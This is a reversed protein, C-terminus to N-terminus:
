KKSEDKKDKAGAEESPKEAQDKSSKGSSGNMMWEQGTAEGIKYSSTMEEQGCARLVGDILFLGLTIAGLSGAALSLMEPNAVNFAGQLGAARRSRDDNHIGLGRQIQDNAQRIADNVQASLGELGPIRVQSLIGLPIALLLPASLGIISAICKGDIESSGKETKNGQLDVGLDIEVYDEQKDSRVGNEIPVVVLKGGPVKGADVELHSGKDVIKDSPVITCSGDGTCINIEVNNSGGEFDVIYSGDKGPNPKISPRPKPLEGESTDPIVADVVRVLNGEPDRIEIQAQGRKGPQAEIALKGPEPETVTVLDKGHVVKYTYKEGFDVSDKINKYLVTRFEEFNLQKGEPLVEINYRRVVVDDRREIVKVTKGISEPGKPVLIWKGDEEIKKVWEKGEIIEIPNDNIRTITFRGDVSLKYDDSSATNGGNKGPVVTYTYREVVTEGSKIEVTATGTKGDKPTVLLKDGDRKVDIVDEGKVKYTFESSNMTISSESKPTLEFKEERAGQPTVNFIYRQYAIGRSNLFEVIVEGKAGEKFKLDKGDDIGSALLEDGKTVKTDGSIGITAGSKVNKRVEDIESPTVNITYEVLEDDGFKEVIVIKDDTGLKPLVKWNGNEDEKKEFLGEGARVEFENRPTGRKLTVTNRDLVDQTVKATPYKDDKVKAVITYTGILVRGNDTEKYVNFVLTGNTVNKVKWPDQEDWEWEGSQSVIEKTLDTNDTGYDITVTHGEDMLKTVNDVSVNTGNEIKLNFTYTKGENDVAKIVVDGTANKKPTVVWLDGRKEIKEIKEAGAVIEPKQEVNKVELIYSNLNGIVRTYTSGTDIMFIYNNEAGTPKGNVKEFVTVKIQDQSLGDVVKLKYQNSSGEVKVLEGPGDVKYDWGAPVTITQDINSVGVNFFHNNVTVDNVTVKETKENVINVTYEHRNGESDTIVFRVTGKGERKPVIEIVYKGNREVKRIDVLGNSDDIIELKWDGLKDVDIIQSKENGEFAFAYTFHRTYREVTSTREVTKYNKNVVTTEVVKTSPEATVTQTETRPAGSRKVTEVVTTAPKTVTVTETAGEVTDTARATTTETVTVPEVQEVTVTKQPATVTETEVKTPLTTKATATVVDPRRTSTVTLEEPTETVTKEVIPQIYQTETATGGVTKTVTANGPRVTETETVTSQVTSTVTKTEQPSVTKTVTERIVDPQYNDLGPQAIILIRQKTPDRLVDQYINYNLPVLVTVYEGPNVKLANFKASNKVLYFDSQGVTATATRRISFGTWSEFEAATLKPPNNSWGFGYAAWRPKIDGTIYGRIQDLVEQNNSVLAQMALAKKRVEEHRGAYYDDLMLKTLSISAKEIDPHIDFSGGSVLNFGYLGSVGDLKRVEYQTDLSPGPLAADICWGPGYQTQLMDMRGKLKAGKNYQLAAKNADSPLASYESTVREDADATPAVVTVGGFAVTASVLTALVRKKLHANKM